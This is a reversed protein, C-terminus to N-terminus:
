RLPLSTRRPLTCPAHCGAASDDRRPPARDAPVPRLEAGGATCVEIWALPRAQAPWASALAAALAIGALPRAM